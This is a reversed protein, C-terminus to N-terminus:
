PWKVTLAYIEPTGLERTLLPSGDPAINITWYGGAGAAFRFDKLSTLYESALDSVRIRFLKMESGMTLYYIYQLDPSITGMAITDQGLKALDSWERTALDYIQIGSLDRRIAIIKGPAIWGPGLLGGPVLSIQGSRVDLIKIEPTTWGKEQDNFVLYNGDPSWNAGDSHMDLVKKPAGGDMNIVYTGPGNTTQFVVRTGDPSIQPLGVEIPPYTLQLRDTGDSRSRWLSHEPYSTYVMWQGDRSFTPELISIGSLFPVLQKSALDLRLLEGHYKLGSAFVTKGDRSPMPSFYSLPGSTLRKPKNPSQLWGHNMRLYWLDQRAKARQEFVIYQGDPTWEPCCFGGPESSKALLELGSGDSNAAYIEPEGSDLYKTFAIRRGDPSMAATVVNGERLSVIKQPNAGDKDSIFLDGQRFLLFRGDPTVTAGFVEMSALRHPEGAPLPIKWVSHSQLGGTADVSALHSGDPAVGVLIPNTLTTPIVALQGGKVSVQGIEEKNENGYNFYVREGDTFLNGKKVGDDTLQIVEQVVPASSPPLWGTVIAGACLLVIGALAVWLWKLRAVRSPEPAIEVPPKEVAIAASPLHSESLLNSAVPALSQPAQVDAESHSAGNNSIVEAAFRYGKGVVTEVYRPKEPDDRLVQRVKRVATNISHDVDVFVDKGWLKEAIEDRSVLAGGREVLLLLLDMPRKELRLVRHGRQLCYRSEDLTFEDFQYQRAMLKGVLGCHRAGINGCSQKLLLLFLL